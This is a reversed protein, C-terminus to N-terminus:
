KLIYNGSPLNTYYAFNNNTKSWEKDFGDLKYMFMTKKPASFDLSAFIM